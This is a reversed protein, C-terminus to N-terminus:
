MFSVFIKQMLFSWLTDMNKLMLIGAKFLIFTVSLILYFLAIINIIKPGINTYETTVIKHCFFIPLTM